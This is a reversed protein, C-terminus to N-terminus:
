RTLDRGFNANFAPSLRGHKEPGHAHRQEIQGFLIV